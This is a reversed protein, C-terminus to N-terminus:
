PRVGNVKALAIRKAEEETFGRKWAKVYERDLQTIIDRAEDSLIFIEIIVESEDDEHFWM